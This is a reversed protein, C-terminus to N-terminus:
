FLCCVTPRKYKLCQPCREWVTQKSNYSGQIPFHAFFM